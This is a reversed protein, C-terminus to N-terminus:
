LENWHEYVVEGAYRPPEGPECRHAALTSQWREGERAPLNSALNEVAADLAEPEQDSFVKNQYTHVQIHWANIELCVAGIEPPLLPVISEEIYRKSLSVIEPPAAM